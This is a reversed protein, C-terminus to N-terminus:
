VRRVEVANRYDQWEGAVEDANGEPKLLLGQWYGVEDQTISGADAARQIDASRLVVVWQELTRAMDEGEQNGLDARLRIMTGRASTDQGDRLDIKRQTHQAHGIARHESWGYLEHLVAGLGIIHDWVEADIWTGVGDLVVETNWYSRNSGM